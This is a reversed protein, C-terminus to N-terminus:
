KLDENTISEYIIQINSLTYVTMRLIMLDPANNDDHSIKRDSKYMYLM